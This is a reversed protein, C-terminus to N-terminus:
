TNFEPLSNDFKSLRQTEFQHRLPHFGALLGIFAKPAEELGSVLEERGSNLM